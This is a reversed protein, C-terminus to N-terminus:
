RALWVTDSSGNVPAAECVPPDAHNCQRSQSVSGLAFEIAARSMPVARMPAATESSARRLEGPSSM